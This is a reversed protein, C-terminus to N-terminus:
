RAPRARRSAAAPNLTVIKFVDDKYVVPFATPTDRYLLAYTADYKSRLFALRHDDIKKYKEELDSRAAFGAKGTTGFTDTIRQMWQAVSSDQFVFAKFDVVIARQSAVRFRGGLPSVVFIADQPLHDRAFFAARDQKDGADEMTLVAMDHLFPVSHRLSLALPVHILALMVPLAPRLWGPRSLVFWLAVLTLLSVFLLERKDLGETFVIALFGAVAIAVGIWAIWPSRHEEKKPLFLAGIQSAALAVPEYAGTGFLAVAALLRSRGSGFVWRSISYGALVLGLWKLIFLNRYVQMSAIFRVPIVEVFVYGVIMLGLVFGILVAVRAAIGRDTNPAFWWARWALVAAPLFFGFM